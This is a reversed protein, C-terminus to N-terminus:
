EMVESGPLRYTASYSGYRVGRMSVPRSEECYISFERCVLRGQEVEEAEAAQTFRLNPMYFPTMQRDNKYFTEPEIRLMTNHVTRGVGTDTLPYDLYDLQGFSNYLYRLCNRGKLLLRCLQKNRIYFLEACEVRGTPKSEEDFIRWAIVLEEWVNGMIALDDSCHFLGTQTSFRVTRCLGSRYNVGGPCTQYTGAPDDTLFAPTTSGM